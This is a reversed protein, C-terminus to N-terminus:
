IKLKHAVLFTMLMMAFLLVGSSLHVAVLLPELKLIVILMGLVIQISILIVSAISTNRASKVKKNAYTATFIVSAATIVVLMRHFHEFFYKEPPFSFGNPCLPWGPCSLGQHSAAIYVGFLMIVYILSLSIFSLALMNKQIPDQKAV